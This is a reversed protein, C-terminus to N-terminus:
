RAMCAQKDLGRKIRYIRITPGSMTKGDAVFEKILENCDFFNNYIRAFWPYQDPNDVFRSYDDSSAIMVDVPENEGLMTVVGNIDFHTVSYKDSYMEIPPTYFERGIKTGPPINQQVWKLSIWRTDPLTNDRIM